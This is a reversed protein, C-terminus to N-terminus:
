SPMTPLVRRPSRLSGRLSQKDLGNSRRAISSSEKDPHFKLVLAKYRKKIEM